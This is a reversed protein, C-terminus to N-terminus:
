AAFSRQRCSLSSTADCPPTKQVVVADVQVLDKDFPRVFGAIEHLAFGARDM